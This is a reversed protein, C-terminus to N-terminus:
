ATMSKRLAVFAAGAVLTAIVTGGAVAVTQSDTGTKPSKAGKDENVADDADTTTDDAPLSTDGDGSTTDVVVTFISLNASTFQICGYEDVTYPGLVETGLAEDSHEVYVLTDMGAYEIGIYFELEVNTADGYYSLVEFSVVYDTDALAPTNAANVSSYSGKVRVGDEAGDYSKVVITNDVSAEGEPSYVYVPYYTEESSDTDTDLEPSSYTPSGVAWAMVPLAMTLAFACVVAVLKKRM